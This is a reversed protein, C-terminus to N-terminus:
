TGQQMTLQLAELTLGRYGSAANVWVHKVLVVVECAAGEPIAQVVRAAAAADSPSLVMNKPLLLECCQAGAASSAGHDAVSQQAVDDANEVAQPSPTDSCQTEAAARQLVRTGLTWATPDGRLRATQLSVQM